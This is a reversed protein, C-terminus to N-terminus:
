SFKMLRLHESALTMWTQVYTERPSVCVYVCVCVHSCVSISVSLCVHMYCAYGKYCSM